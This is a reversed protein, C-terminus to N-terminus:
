DEKLQTLSGHSGGTSHLQMNWLESYKGDLEMLEDHTGQELVVGDDLVVINDANRVTGLRHAIVLVTRDQGLRDLAEQM